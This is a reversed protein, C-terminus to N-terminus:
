PLRLRGRGDIRLLGDNNLAEIRELHERVVEVASVEGRTLRSLLQGAGLSTLRTM